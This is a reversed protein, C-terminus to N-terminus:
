KVSATFLVIDYLQSLVQQLKAVGPRVLYYAEEDKYDILTEDLDLM